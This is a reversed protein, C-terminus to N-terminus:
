WVHGVTVLINLNVPFKATVLFFILKKADGNKTYVWRKRSVGKLM